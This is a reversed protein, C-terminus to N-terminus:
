GIGKSLQLNTDHKVKLSIAYGLNRQLLFGLFNSQGRTLYTYSFDKRQKSHNASHTSNKSFRSDTRPPRDRSIIM